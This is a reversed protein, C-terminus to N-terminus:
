VLIAGLGVNSADTYITLPLKLDPHGLVPPSVLHDKLADFAKQCETTWSFRAGKRKLKHLPEALKSFNPVFRHYWGVMGVFRQVGKLCTPVPFDRIAQTKEPDAQFGAASVVHGLFKLQSQFFNSKVMNVNLGAERLHNM